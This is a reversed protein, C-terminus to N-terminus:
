KKLKLFIINARGYKREDTIEIKLNEIQKLIRGKQDTEVIVLSNEDILKRELIEKLSLFIFDSDYPPDIYIIDLKETIKNRLLSIFDTNYLKIKDKLHTKEINKNIIQVAEKSKDCIIVEKAGRSAAELGVAGSGSFLDLFISEKVENQIINFLSERVRDLTPRTNLGELTYLKTGRATGSIIRM